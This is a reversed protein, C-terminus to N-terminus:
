RMCRHAVTQQGDGNFIIPKLPMNAPHSSLNITTRFSLAGGCGSTM